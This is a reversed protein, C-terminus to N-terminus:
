KIEAIKASYISMGNPIMKKLYRIVVSTQMGQFFSHTSLTYALIPMYMVLPDDDKRLLWFFKMM